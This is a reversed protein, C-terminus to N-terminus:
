GLYIALYLIGAAFLTLILAVMIFLANPANEHEEWIVEVTKKQFTASKRRMSAANKLKAEEHISPKPIPKEATQEVILSKEIEINQQETNKDNKGNEIIKERLRVDSTKDKKNNEEVVIQPAVSGGCSYCFLANSRVDVGCANCIQNKVFTKAM